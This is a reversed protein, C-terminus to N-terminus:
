RLDFREDVSPREFDDPVDPAPEVVPPPSVVGAKSALWTVFAARGTIAALIGTVIEGIYGDAAGAPIVHLYTLVGVLVTIAATLFPRTFLETM